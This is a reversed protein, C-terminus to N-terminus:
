RHLIPLMHWPRTRAVLPLEQSLANKKLDRLVGVAVVSLSPHGMQTTASPAAEDLGEASATEEGKAGWEASM